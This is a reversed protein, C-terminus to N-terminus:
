YWLFTPSTVTEGVEGIAQDGCRGEAKALDAKM